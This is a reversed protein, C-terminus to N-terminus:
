FIEDDDKAYSEDAEIVLINGTLGFEQIFGEASDIRVPEGRDCSCFEQIVQAIDINSRRLLNELDQQTWVKDSDPRLGNFSVADDHWVCSSVFDNMFAPQSGFSFECYFMEFIAFTGRYSAQRALQDSFHSLGTATQKYDWSYKPAQMRPWKAEFVAAKTYGNSQVIITADCGMSREVTAPLLHSTARLGTRAYSNISRRLAGTFNSTYDDEDRIMGISLDGRIERDSLFALFSLEMIQHRSLNLM